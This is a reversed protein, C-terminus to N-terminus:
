TAESVLLRQSEREQPYTDRNFAVAQEMQERTINLVLYRNNGNEDAFFDLNEFAVAVEKTGIGLFGGFDIIVADIQKGEEGLVFDGIVGIHQDDPGYVNTGILEEATLTTEDFDVLNERNLPEIADPTAQPQGVAGTELQEDDTAAGEAPQEVAAQQQTQDDTAVGEAPQEVAAQQQTQDDTAVGEAPQEVAAQEQAEGEMAEEGPAQDATPAVATQMPQDEVIEVAPADNLAERTTELVLRETNDEAMVWQLDTYNVAVNKEGVGLFGGVGLIVAAIQGDQNVVLDNIEGLREADNAASTYVPFGLLRSALGDTDVVEYGQSLLDSGATGQAPQNTAAEQAFAPAVLLATTLATTTILTRIM